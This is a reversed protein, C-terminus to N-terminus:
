APKVVLTVTIRKTKAPETLDMGSGDAMLLRVTPRATGAVLRYPEASELLVLRGTRQLDFSIVHNATDVNITREVVDAAEVVEGVLAEPTPSFTKLSNVGLVQLAAIRQGKLPELLSMIEASSQIVAM